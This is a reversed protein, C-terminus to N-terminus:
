QSIELQSVILKSPLRNAYSQKQEKFVSLLRSKLM